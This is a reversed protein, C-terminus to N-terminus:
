NFDKRLCQLIYSRLDDVMAPFELLKWVISRIICYMYQIHLIVHMKKETANIILGINILLFKKCHNGSSVNMIITQKM